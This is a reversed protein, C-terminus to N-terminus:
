MLVGRGLLVGKGKACIRSHGRDGAERTMRLKHRMHIDSTAIFIHIRPNKADQLAEICADVDELNTRALSAVTCNVAQSVARIGQSARLRSPLARRSSTWAWGNSSVPSRLRRTPTSPSGPSQEGDRLTTDFILVTDQGAPVNSSMIHMRRSIPSTRARRENAEAYAGTSPAHTCYSARHALLLLGLLLSSPRPSCGVPRGSLSSRAETEQIPHAAFMTPCM